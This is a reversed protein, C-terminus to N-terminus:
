RRSTLAALLDCDPIQMVCLMFGASRPLIARLAVTAPIKSDPLALACPRSGRRNNYIGLFGAGDPHGPPQIIRLYEPVEQVNPM